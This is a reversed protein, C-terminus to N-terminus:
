AAAAWSGRWRSRQQTVQLVGHVPEACGWSSNRSSSNSHLSTQWYAEGLAGLACGKISLVRLNSCRSCVELLACWQDGSLQLGSLDLEQVNAFPLITSVAYLQESDQIGSVKVVPNNDQRRFVLCLASLTCTYQINASAMRRVSAVFDQVFKV